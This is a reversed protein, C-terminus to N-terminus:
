GRESSQKETRADTRAPFRSTHSLETKGSDSECHQRAVLVDIGRQIEDGGGAACELRADRNRVALQADIGGARSATRIDHKIQLRARQRLDIGRCACGGAAADFLHLRHDAADCARGIWGGLREHLQRLDSSCVDSSWDSIRMEYATKQKFVFFLMDCVSM